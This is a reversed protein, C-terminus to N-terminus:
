FCECYKKLCGSKSCKCGRLHKGIASEETVEQVVVKPLFAKPNRKLQGEIAKKRETNELINDCNDCKCDNGCVLGAAYCECYLKLCKSKRCHCTIVKM